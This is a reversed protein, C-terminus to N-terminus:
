TRPFLRLQRTETKITSFYSDVLVDINGNLPTAQWASLEDIYVNPIGYYLYIKKSHAFAVAIEAFTNPGVYHTIDYKEPNVALVGVTIPEKIKTLYGFSVKRKFIEFNEPTFKARLDEDPVPIVANVGAKVLSDRVKCMIAFSSMSGCIVIRKKTAVDADIDYM